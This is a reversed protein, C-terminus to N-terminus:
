KYNNIKKILELLDSKNFVAESHNNTKISLEDSKVYYLVILISVKPLFNFQCCLIIIFDTAMKNLISILTTM